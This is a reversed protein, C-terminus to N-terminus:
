GGAEGVETEYGAPMAQIFDHAQAAQAAAIMEAETAGPRGFILKERITAAFLTTEQLVIGIQDRLSNLTIRRLDHGDITICGQTPDYFRPILNILSSKGSGTAGLLAIIEGPKADITINDLVRHRNFYAFGVGDFRVRGQVPPLEYADPADLM